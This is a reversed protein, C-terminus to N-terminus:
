AMLPESCECRKDAISQMESPLPSKEVEKIEVVKMKGCKKCRTVEWKNM